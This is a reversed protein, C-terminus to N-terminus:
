ALYTAGIFNAEPILFSGGAVLRRRSRFCTFIPRADYITFALQEFALHHRWRNQGAIPGTRLEIGRKSPRFELGGRRANEELMALAWGTYVFAAGTLFLAGLRIKRRGGLAM